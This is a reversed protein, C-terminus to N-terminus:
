HGHLRAPTFLGAPTEMTARGVEEGEPLCCYEKGTDEPQSAQQQHRTDPRNNPQGPSSSFIGPLGLAGSATSCAELAELRDRVLCLPAM